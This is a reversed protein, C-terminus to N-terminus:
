HHIENIISHISCMCYCRWIYRNRGSWGCKRDCRYDGNVIDINISFYNIIDNM